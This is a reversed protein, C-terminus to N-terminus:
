KRRFGILESYRIEYCNNLYPKGTSEQISGKERHQAISKFVEMLIMGCLYGKSLDSLIQCIIIVGKQYDSRATLLNTCNKGKCYPVDSPDLSM